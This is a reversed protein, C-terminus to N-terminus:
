ATLMMLLIALAATGRVAWLGRAYVVAAGLLFAPVFLKAPGYTYLCLALLPGAVLLWRPRGRVGAALAAFALLFIAPFAILEFAIRSFHVHWPVLALLLAAILGGAAGFVIRGFLGIGLVAVVGFLAATLRVSFESLGFLAIPLTSAYIF